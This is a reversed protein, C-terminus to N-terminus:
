DPVALLELRAQHQRQRQAVVVAHDVAGGGCAEGGVERLQQRVHAPRQQLARVAPRGATRAAPAVGRLAALRAAARHFSCLMAFVTSTFTGSMPPNSSTGTISTSTATPSVTALSWPRAVSSDSLAVISTGDEWAPTTLSTFTLTPSVTDSPATTASISVPAAGPLWFTAGPLRGGTAAECRAGASGTACAGCAAAD